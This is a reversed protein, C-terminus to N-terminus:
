CLVGLDHMEVIRPPCKGLVVLEVLNECSLSLITVTGFACVTTGTREEEKTMNGGTRKRKGWEEKCNRKDEGTVKGMERM